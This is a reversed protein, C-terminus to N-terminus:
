IDSVGISVPKISDIVKLSYLKRISQTNQALGACGYLTDTPVAVIGGKSIIDIMIRDYKKTKRLYIM